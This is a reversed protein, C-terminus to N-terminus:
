QFQIKEIWKIFNESMKEVTFNLDNNEFKDKIDSRFSENVIFKEIFLKLQELNESICDSSIMELYELEVGHTNNQYTVLPVKLAWADLVHLGIGGPMLIMDTWLFYKKREIFDVSPIYGDVDTLFSKILNVDENNAAGVIKFAINLKRTVRLYNIIDLFEELLKNPQIRAVLLINIPDGLKKISSTKKLVESKSIHSNNLIGINIKKKINILATQTYALYGDSFNILSKLLFGQGRNNGYLTLKYNRLFKVILILYLSLSRSAENHVILTDKSFKNLPIIQYYFYHKKFSFYKIETERLYPRSVQSSIQKKEGDIPKSYYVEFKVANKSYYKYLIDFFPLRYDATVRQIFIIKKYKVM